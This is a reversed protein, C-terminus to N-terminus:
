EPEWGTAERYLRVRFLGFLSATVAVGGGLCLAAGSMLLVGLGQDAATLGLVLVVLSRRFSLLVPMAMWSSGQFSWPHGYCPVKGGRVSASGRCIPSTATCTPATAKAVPNTTRVLGAGPAALRFRFHFRRPDTAPIPTPRPETLLDGALDIAADTGAVIGAGVTTVTVVVVPAGEVVM